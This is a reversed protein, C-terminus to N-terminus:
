RIKLDFVYGLFFFNFFGSSLWYVAGQHCLEPYERRCSYIFNMLPVVPETVGLVNMFYRITICHLIISKINRICM